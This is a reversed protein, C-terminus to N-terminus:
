TSIGSSNVFGSRDSGSLWNQRSGRSSYYWDVPLRISQYTSSM